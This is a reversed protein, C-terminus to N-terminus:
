NIFIDQLKKEEINSDYKRDHILQEAKLIGTETQNDKNEIM